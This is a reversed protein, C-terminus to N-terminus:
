PVEIGDGATYGTYTVWDGLDLAPDGTYQIDCPLWQMVAGNAPDTNTMVDAINDLITQANNYLTGRILANSYLSLVEGTGTPTEPATINKTFGGDAGEYFSVSMNVASYKLVTDSFESKKRLSDPIAYGTITGKLKWCVIRLRGLRDITAFACLLQCLYDLYDRATIIEPSWALVHKQTGNPMLNLLAQVNADSDWLEVGLAACLDKLRQFPTKLTTKDSLPYDVDFKTMNDYGVLKITTATPRTAEVVTFIGLPVGEYETPSIKLYYTLEIKAGHFRRYNTVNDYLILEQEGTHTHGISFGNKSVCQNTNRLNAIDDDVVTIVTNDALTITGAVYSEMDLGTTLRRIADKYAQSVNYM